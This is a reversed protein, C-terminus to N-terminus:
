SDFFNNIDTLYEKYYFTTIKVVPKKRMASLVANKLDTNSKIIINSDSYEAINSFANAIIPTGCSISEVFKTPFGAKNSLSNERIIISWDASSVERIAEDHPIRGYFETSNGKYITFYMKEFQEKTIGIVKLKAPQEKKVEEITNIIIDLREKQASPSGAYVFTPVDNKLKKINWKADQLDVLPPIKVTNTKTKYYDYLYKSIAIIGNMEPHVKKMRFRVDQRKVISKISYGKVDYWETVDAYSKIKQKKCFNVIRSLAISPYNYAIIADIQIDIAIKKVISIGFNYEVSNKGCEYCDFGFYTKWIPHKVYKINNIFFVDHGLDRLAKAIGVVRQAAANKDPLQFGGIYLIKMFLEM